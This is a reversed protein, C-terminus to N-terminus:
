KAHLELWWTWTRWLAFREHARMTPCWGFRRGALRDLSRAARARTADDPDLLARVLARPDDADRGGVAPAGSPDLRARVRDREAPPLRRLAAELADDASPPRRKAATPDASADPPRPVARFVGHNRWALSSLVAQLSATSLVGPEPPESLGVAHVEVHRLLNWRDVDDLLQADDAYTGRLSALPGGGGETGDWWDDSSPEGDSLVYITDVGDRRLDRDVYTADPRLGKEATRLMRLIGGHLNTAGLTGSGALRADVARLLAARAAADARVLGGGKLLDETTTGFLCTGFREADGLRGAAARVFELAADYRTRIRAWRMPVEILGDAGSAPGSPLPAPERGKRQAGAGDGPTTAGGRRLPTFDPPPLLDHREEPTLAAAMSDSADLVFGIRHGTTVVDMFEVPPAYTRGEDDRSPDLAGELLLRWGSASRLPRPLGAAQALVRGLLLRTRDSTGAAEAAGVVRLALARYEPGGHRGAQSRLAAAATELRLAREDGAAPLAALTADIAAPVADDAWAALALLSACALEAPLKPASVRAAVDAARGHEVERLAVRYWLWADTAEDRADCWARLAAVDTAADFTDCALSALFGQVHSGPESRAYEQTFRKLARPDRLSALARWARTRRHFSKSALDSAREALTKAYADDASAERACPVGSAGVTALLATALARLGRRPGTPPRAAATRLPSPRM